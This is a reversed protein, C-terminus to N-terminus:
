CTLIISIKYYIRYISLEVNRCTHWIFLFSYIFIFLMTSLLRYLYYNLTLLYLSISPSVMSIINKYKIVYAM